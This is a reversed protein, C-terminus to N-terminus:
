VAHGHVGARIILWSDLTVRLIVLTILLSMSRRLRSRVVSRGKAEATKNWEPKFLM